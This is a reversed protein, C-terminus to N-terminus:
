EHPKTALLPDVRGEYVPTGTLIGRFQRLPEGLRIGGAQLRFERITREHEGSRRKIVSIAQRIEGRAEFYRLLVVTDALYTADVPTSM